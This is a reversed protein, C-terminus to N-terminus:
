MSRNLREYVAIAIKHSPHLSGTLQCTKNVPKTKPNIKNEEAM